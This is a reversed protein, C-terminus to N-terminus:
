VGKNIQKIQKNLAQYFGHDTLALVKRKKGIAHSLEQSSFIRIVPVGSKAAVRNVKTWSNAHLDKAAIVAQINKKRLRSIVMETGTVIKGAKMALGLLNLAKEKSHLSNIVLYNKGQRKITSTLM